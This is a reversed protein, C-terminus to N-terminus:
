KAAWGTNGIGVEKVYFSTLVGGDIRRFTSGIDATIAGEPDGSGTVDLINGAIPGIKAYSYVIPATSTGVNDLVQLLAGDSTIRPSTGGSKDGVTLEEIEAEPFRNVYDGGIIVTSKDTSADDILDGSCTGGTVYVDNITTTPSTGTIKVLNQITGSLLQVGLIRNNKGETGVVVHSAPSVGGTNHMVGSVLCNHADADLYVSHPATNGETYPNVVEFSNAEGLYITGQAGGCGKYVGGILRTCAPVGGGVPVYVAENTCDTISPNLVTNSNAESGFWLGRHCSDIEIHEITNAWSNIQMGPATSVGTIRVNKVMNNISASGIFGDDIIGPILLGCTSTGVGTITLDQVKAGKVAGSTSSTDGITIVPTGVGGTVNTLHKGCGKVIQGDTKIVLSETVTGLPLITDVGTNICGQTSAFWWSKYPTSKDVFLWAASGDGATPLIVSGGNETYTGPSAGSVYHRDPGGRGDGATTYGLLKVTKNQFNNTTNRLDAITPVTYDKIMKTPIKTLYTM